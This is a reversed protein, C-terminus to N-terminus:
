KHLYSDRIASAIKRFYIINIKKGERLLKFSKKFGLLYESNRFYYFESYEIWSSNWLHITFSELEIYNRYNQLDSKKEFPLPYFYKPPFITIEDSTFITDFTKDSDIYKLFESTVLRPITIENINGEIKEELSNYKNLCIKIFMNKPTAGIVGCSVYNNDEAGFFCKTDLLSDFSKLVMMDTDLYIGGHEFLKKLRIYDAVFAWKKLRYASQVFPHSLDCNKENWEIIEYDHLHTKWSNICDRILKPKRKGGFWCYHIIKPIM